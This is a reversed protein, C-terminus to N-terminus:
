RRFINESKETDRQINVYIICIYKIKTKKNNKQSIQLQKEINKECQSNNHLEAQPRFSCKLKRILVM